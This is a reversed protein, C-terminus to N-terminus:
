SAAPDAIANGDALADALLRRARAVRSQVTGRPCGLISAADDYTHGIVAVLVFANRFPLPLRLILERLDPPLIPDAPTSFDTAVTAVRETRVHERRLQDAHDLCVRRAVSLLWSRAPATSRYTHAGRFARLFTEQVLDDLHSGADTQWACFRRVDSETATVLRAFAEHDGDAALLLDLTAQDM